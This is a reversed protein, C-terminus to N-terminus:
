EIYSADDAVSEGLVSDLDEVTPDALQCYWVDDGSTPLEENGILVDLVAREIGNVDLAVPFVVEFEILLDGFKGPASKKPFGENPVTLITGPSIVTNPASSCMLTRKDLHKLPFSVGLLAEALTISKRVVLNSGRREFIPDPKEVISVAIDELGEFRIIDGDKTGPEIEVEL